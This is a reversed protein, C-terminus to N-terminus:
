NLTFKFYHIMLGLKKWKTEFYTPFLSQGSEFTFKGNKQFVASMQQAYPEHDTALYLIGKPTLLKVLHDVFYDQVMRHKGHVRKPWPDPFLIYISQFQIKHFFKELIVRADGLVLTLNNIKLKEARKCIKEFRKKKKEIAIFYHTPFQQCQHVVFAGNGPGIELSLNATPFTPVTGIPLPSMQWGQIPKEPPIYVKTQMLAEKLSLIRM